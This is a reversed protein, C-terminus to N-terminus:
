DTCIYKHINRHPLLTSKGTLNKTTAFNVVRVGNDNSIEHLNEKEITPKYIDERSVKANFDRLLMKMHYNPFKDFIRELEEYFSEKV